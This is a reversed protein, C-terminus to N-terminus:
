PQEKMRNLSSKVIISLFINVAGGFVGFITGMYIIQISTHHSNTNIFQPLMVLFFVLIKPNLANLIMGKIFTNSDTKKATSVSDLESISPKRLQSVGLYILFIACLYKSVEFFLPIKTITITLGIASAFIHLLTGCEIGIISLVLARVDSNLTQHVVYFMTPGPMINLLFLTILFYTM